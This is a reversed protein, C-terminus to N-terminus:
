RVRDDQAASGTIAGRVTPRVNGKGVDYAYGAYRGATGGPLAFLAGMLTSVDRINKGTVDKEVDLLRKVLDVSGGAANELLNVAPSTTMRDNWPQEDFLNIVPTIVNGGLGPVEASLARLSEFTFFRLALDDAISGDKDDDGLQGRLAMTIAQGGLMPVLFGLLAMQAAVGAKAIGTERSFRVLEDAQLNAMTNFWGTFMLFLKAFPTQAEYGAVDTVDFSSQTMRVAAGARAVAEAKAVEDTVDKGQQELAHEYAASWVIADVVNQVGTQLFYAHKQMWAQSRAFKSKNQMLDNITEVSDHIQKSQRAAMFPDLAAIEQYTTARALVRWTASVLHRPPIRLAAIAPGVLQQAANGINGFMLAMGARQRVAVFLRDLTPSLGPKTASQSAVRHLWPLIVSDWAEPSTREMSAKVDPHLFLRQVDRVVPQLVAFRLADNIHQPVLDLDLSLPRAFEEVRDKTFGRGTSPLQSRFDTELDALTKFRAAERTDRDLKAPMYGGRWTGISLKVEAAPIEKFRFGFIDFHAKQALPKLEANLDWIGQVFDMVDKTIYGADIMQQVFRDWEARQLGRKEDWTGWGRGVLLKRLNSANGTHLLAAVLEAHGSGGSRGFVHRLVKNSDRFEIRGPKLKPQLEKVMRAVRDTYQGRLTTYHTVADRVPRWVLRTFVGTTAGDKRYLWHEPRSALGLLGRAKDALTELTSKAGPEAAAARAPNAADQKALARAASDLTTKQAGDRYQRERLSTYWLSRITEDLDRFEAGNLDRYDHINKGEAVAREAWERAREVLPELHEFLEPRYQKLAELHAKADLGEPGLGFAGAFFRALAVYDVDRTKGLRKDSRFMRKLLQRLETVEGQLDLAKKVIQSEILERRKYAAAAEFEGRALAREADRRHRVEAARHLDPRLERVSTSAIVEDAYAAAARTMVRTPVIVQEIFSAEERQKKAAMRQLMALEQAIVHERYENHVAREVMDAVKKPDAFESHEAMMAADTAEKLAQEFQPTDLLARVMSHASAFGSMEAVTEPDSGGRTTLGNLASIDAGSFERVLAETAARDLKAFPVPYVTGDTDVAEGKLLARRVRHVPEQELRKRERDEVGKRIRAVGREADRLIRSKARGLWRMNQISRTTIQAIGEQTAKARFLAYEAWDLDSVGEPRESFMPHMAREQEAAHIADEAALMRSFVGKVEDTFAPLDTLFERKYVSNLEADLNSYLQRMWQASRDFLEKMAVSPAEGQALRRQVGYAFAEHHKRQGEVGLSFWANLSPVGFWDLLKQADAKVDTSAEEAAALKFFVDLWHHALEHVVTDFRAKEFLFATRLSPSYAGRRESPDGAFLPMGKSVSERLEPTITFGPQAPESRHGLSASQTEWRAHKKLAKNAVKPVLDDYFKRMGEGGVVLDETELTVSQSQEAIWDAAHRSRDFTRVNGYDDYELEGNPGMVAYAVIDSEEETESDEADVSVVTYVWRGQIEAKTRLKSALEPGVLEDLTFDGGESVDYTHNEGSRDVATLTGAGPDYQLEEVHHAVGEAEAIQEGTGFLLHDYGGEVAVMMLKKLALGVWDETNEIFPAIHEDNSKRLGQGWDSQIEEVFLAKKLAGDKTYASRDSVRIHVLFNEHDPFHSHTFLAEAGLHARVRRLEANSLEDWDPTFKANPYVTRFVSPDDTYLQKADPLTNFRGGLTLLIERYNEKSGRVTISNWRTQIKQTIKNALSRKSLLAADEIYNALLADPFAKMYSIQRKIIETQMETARPREKKYYEVVAQRFSDVSSPAERYSLRALFQERLRGFESHMMQHTARFEAELERAEERLFETRVTADVVWDPLGLLAAQTYAAILHDEVDYTLDPERTKRSQMRGLRITAERFKTLTDETDRLMVTDVRVGNEEIFQLLEERTVKAANEAGGPRGALKLFERIGTWYLEAEKVTGKNLLGQLQQLWSEPSGAKMSLGEVGRRLASFFEVPTALQELTSGLEGDGNLGSRSVLDVAVAEHAPGLLVAVGQNLGAKPVYIGDFGAAVIAKELANFPAGSERWAAVLGKADTDTNYVNNLRVTHPFGGVGPEPVIGNGTDVYFHVRHSLTRDGAVRQREAGPLGSGYKSGSLLTRPQRSFHVGVVSTSGETATGYAAKPEAFTLPQPLQEFQGGTYGETMVWDPLLGIKQEAYVTKESKATQNEKGKPGFNVWSNQGRTETTIAKQALPSFMAMHQQWANEEGRARFGVGEKVHGFYDHVVRFLDNVRVPRGSITEGPVIALMPNEAEQQATIGQQGYGSDTPYVWMHNNEVIDRIANRPNGYPDDGEIFEVKLGTAKVAEWQALTERALAEYAARVDPNLPDSKMEEYAQAIRAGREPDVPVFTRSPAYDIGAAKTYALAAARAPEHPGFAVPKGDVLEFDPLGALRPRPGPGAADFSAAIDAPGGDREVRWALRAEAAVEAPMRGLRAAMTEVWARHGFAVLKVDAKSLRPDKSLEAQFDTEVQRAQTDWAAKDAVNKEVHQAVAERNKEIEAEAADAEEQSYGDKTLRIVPALAEALKTGGLHAYYDGIPIEIDEGNALAKPLAEVVAPLVQALKESSEGTDKLAEALKAAAVYVRDPTKDKAVAAVAQAYTEPSAARLEKANEADEALRKLLETHVKTQQVKKLDSAYHLAPGLLGIVGMGKAMATFTDGLRQLSAAATEGDIGDIANIAREIGIAYGEQLVETSTEALVGTLYEKLFTKAAEGATRKTLEHGGARAALKGLAGKFPAAVGKFGIVELVGAGLAYAGAGIMAQEHAKAAADKPALGQNQLADYLHDYLTAYENGFEVAATHSFIVSGAAFSAAPAAGAGGTALGTVTGAAVGAATAALAPAAMQGLLKSAEDFVGTEKSASDQVAEIEAIRDRDAPTATDFAVKGRLIGLENQTSGAEYNRFFWDFTDVTSKLNGLHDHLLRVTQVNDLLGRIGPYKADFALREALQAKAFKRLVAPDQSLTERPRGSDKAIKTLEAEFAPDSNLASSFQTLFQQRQQAEQQKLRAVFDLPAAPPNSPPLIQPITSNTM